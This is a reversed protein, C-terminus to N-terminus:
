NLNKSFNEKKFMGKTILIEIIISVAVVCWSVIYFLLIVFTNSFLSDSKDLM